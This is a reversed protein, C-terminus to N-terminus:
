LIPTEIACTQVIQRRASDGRPLARTQSPPNARQKAPLTKIHIRTSKKSYFKQLKSTSKQNEKPSIAQTSHLIILQKWSKLALKNELDNCSTLIQSCNAGTKVITTISYTDNILHKRAAIIKESLNQVHEDGLIVVTSKSLNYQSGTAGDRSNNLLIDQSETIATTHRTDSNNRTHLLVDKSPSMAGMCQSSTIHNTESQTVNQSNEYNSLTKHYKQPTNFLVTKYMNLPSVRTILQTNLNTIKHRLPTMTNIKKGIDCTLKKLMNIQKKQRENICKLSTNESNLNDIEQEAQELKIKLNDIEQLYEQDNYSTNQQIESYTSLMTSDLVTSNLADQSMISLDLDSKTRPLKQRITVNEM